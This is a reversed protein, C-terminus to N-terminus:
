VLGNDILWKAQQDTNLQSINRVDIQKTQQRASGQGSSEVFPPEKVIKKPQAKPPEKGPVAMGKSEYYGDRMEEYFASMVKTDGVAFAKELAIRKRYPLYDVKEKSYEFIADYNEPDKSRASNEFEVVEGQKRQQENLDSVIQNAKLSLAALHVPNFEDFEEGLDQTVAQRAINSVQEYFLKQSNQPVTEQPKTGSLIQLQEIVKDIKEKQQALAERETDLERRQGAVEQTKTTYDKQRQYGNILEDLTKEEEVGDVKVKYKPQEETSSDETSEETTEDEETEQNGEDELIHFEGNEDLGFDPTTEEAVTEEPTTNTDEPTTGDGEAFLQLDFEKFDM